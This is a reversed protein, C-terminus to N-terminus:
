KPVQEFAIRVIKGTLEATVMVGQVAALSGVATLRSEWSDTEVVATTVTEPAPLAQSSQASMRVIQLGKIGALLGILILFGIFSYIIRKIM